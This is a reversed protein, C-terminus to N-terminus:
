WVVFCKVPGFKFPRCVFYKLEQEFPSIRGKYTLFCQPFLLFHQNGANEGKGVINGFPKNKLTTLIFILKKVLLDWSTVVEFFFDTSFM